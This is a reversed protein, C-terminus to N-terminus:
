EYPFRRLGDWTMVRRIPLPLKEQKFDLPFWPNNKEYNLLYFQCAPTDGHGILAITDGRDNHAMDVIMVAHSKSGKKVIFDGIQVQYQAIPKYAHYFQQTHSEAFLTRLYKEFSYRSSDPGTSKKFQVAIGKFHPRVGQRWESWKLRYGGPLPFVIKDKQESPLEIRNITLPAIDQSSCIGIYIYLIYVTTILYYKM